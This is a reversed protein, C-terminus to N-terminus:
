AITALSYEVILDRALSHRNTFSRLPHSTPSNGYWGCRHLFGWRKITTRRGMGPPDPLKVGFPSGDLLIDSFEEVIIGQAIDGGLVPDGIHSEKLHQQQSVINDM